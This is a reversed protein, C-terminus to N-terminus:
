RDSANQADVDDFISRGGEPGRPVEGRDFEREYLEPEDPWNNSIWDSTTVQEDVISDAIHPDDGFYELLSELLELFPQMHAEPDDNSDHNWEFGERVEPLSPVLEEKVRELLNDLEEPTFLSQVGRDDLASCDEGLLLRDSAKEIVTKRHQDPLMGFQHLRVALGVIMSSIHYRRLDSLEDLLSPSHQLYLSLFEASCRRSLFGYLQEAPSFVTFPSNGQLENSTIEEIKSLMEPYLSRPIVIANELGVDGCTVQRLLLNPASGQIFIDILDPSDALMAAYSDGITPHRFQWTSGDDVRSHLVFSGELAELAIRSQGPNSGLRSLAEVESSRLDIPSELFGNRMYILALGTKSDTDLSELLQRLLLDRKEVFQDIGHKDISLGKTFNPDGLRRAMEPIFRSHSAVNELYPKIASRFEHTQNGLKIHYYLMQRKEDLSLEHVDIVVKSEHLLPFASEKLDQRARNYIYDRSTMVIKAGRSLMAGIDPFVRNWGKALSDEYQTVGFADDVWFFQSPENPNWHETVREPIGLKLVPSDWQDLAAMALLSAITTKGAAPEGILLVFSHENLAGVAKQYADTVVVKALDERMFELVTRSQDYAREDLIQSLDGLGYIRPVLMRLRKNELIQQNIWTSGYIRVHKVGIAKLRGEVKEALVGTLGANTMLIYSDCLGKAVLKEAKEIEDSLDSEQLVYDARSTFKCQIVFNGFLDEQGIDRWMGAFAGDRGGDHSDLFSGVTQGLIERTVTLCLRQFGNWGLNHLQYM